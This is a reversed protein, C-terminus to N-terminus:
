TRYCELHCAGGAHSGPQVQMKAIRGMELKASSPLTEWTLRFLKSLVFVSKGVMAWKGHVKKAGITVNRGVFLYMSQPSRASHILTTLFPKTSEHNNLIAVTSRPASRTCCSVRFPMKQPNRRFLVEHPRVFLGVDNWQEPKLGIDGVEM